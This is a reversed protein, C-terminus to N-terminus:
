GPTAGSALAEMATALALDRDTLGGVDHTWLTVEVRDYVNSWNPHHDLREAEFAARVMFAMAAPFGDFRYSRRLTGDVVTWGPLRALGQAVDSESLASYTPAM